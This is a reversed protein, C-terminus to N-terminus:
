NIANTLVVWLHLLLGEFMWSMLKFADVIRAFLNIKTAQNPGSRPEVSLYMVTRLGIWSSSPWFAGEGGQKRGTKGRYSRSIYSNAGECSERVKVM